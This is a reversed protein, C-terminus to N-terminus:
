MLCHINFDLQPRECDVTGLVLTDTVILGISRCLKVCANLSGGTAVIDDVIVCVTDTGYNLDSAIELTDQSYETGYTQTSVPPPLKKAKRIPVFPVNLAAAMLVGLMCGRLEPGAIVLKKPFKFKFVNGLLNVLQDVMTSTKGDYYIANYDKFVIGSKPFDKVTRYHGKTSIESYAANLAVNIQVSRDVGLEKMWNGKDYTFREAFIEGCTIGRTMAEDFIRSHIPVPMLETSKKHLTTYYFNKAVDYVVADCIDYYVGNVNVIGNEVAVILEVDINEQALYAIAQQIREVACWLSQRIGDVLGFPQQVSGDFKKTICNNGLFTKVCGVKLANETTILYHVM